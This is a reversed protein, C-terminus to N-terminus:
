QVLTNLLTQISDIVHAVSVVCIYFSWSLNHMFNFIDFYFRVMQLSRIQNLHYNVTMKGWVPIFHESEESFVIFM